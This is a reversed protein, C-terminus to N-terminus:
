SPLLARVRVRPHVAAAAVQVIRLAVLQQQQQERERGHIGVECCPELALTCHFSSPHHNDLQLPISPFFLPLSGPAYGGRKYLWLPVFLAEALWRTVVFM